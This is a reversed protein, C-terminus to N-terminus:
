RKPQSRSQCSPHTRAHVEKLSKICVQTYIATTELRVHGLLQAIFRIDAGNELMHTACSHRLLHCAGTKQIGATKMTRSVWNGIYAPSLREGYGSLFLSPESESVELRPRSHKLYRKLWRHLKPGTPVLRDKGGKGKRIRLCQQETEWDELDLHVLESRRIGTAYLTELITRDRIGVPDTTDPLRMLRKIEAHSLAKPLPRYPKRPLELDSAPNAPILNERCLWAFFRQLAGLKNRQSTVGLPCGDEKTYVCLWHQYKELTPKTFEAPSRFHHSGAWRLFSRLAWKNAEISAPSYNREKLRIFWQDVLFALSDNRSRDFGDPSAPFGGKRDAWNRMKEATAIGKRSSSM